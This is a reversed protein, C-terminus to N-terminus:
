NGFTIQPAARRQGGFGSGSSLGLVSTGAQPRDTVTRGVQTWPHSVCLWGTFSCLPVMTEQNIEIPWGVMRGMKEDMCRQAPVNWYKTLLRLRMEEALGEESKTTREGTWRISSRLDGLFPESNRAWRQCGERKELRAM